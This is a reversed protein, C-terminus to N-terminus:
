GGPAPEPEAAQDSELAALRAAVEDAVPVGLRRYIELASRLDAAGQDAEGEALRSEGIGKLADAEDLPSDVERALEMAEGHHARAEAPRGTERLVIGYMNLAEAAGQPDGVERFLRLAELHAEAAGAYDGTRRRVTGIDDLVNAAGQRGGLERFIELSRALDQGAGAYDGTEVRVRGLGLLGIAEGSRDGLDHAMELAEKLSAVAGEYDGTLRQVAGLVGLCGKQGIPSGVERFLELSQKLASMAGPYDCVQNRVAGLGYFAIAQQDLDGLERALKLARELSDAAGPCDGSLRLVTGRECLAHVLGLRDGLREALELARGLDETAAQYDDTLWSVSGREILANAESQSDGLERALELARQLSEAAGEYDDAMRQIAGLDTLAVALGLRDDLLRSADAAIMHLRRVHNWPAAGRLYGQMAAPLAVAHYPYEAAASFEVAASLNALEAGMWATAQERTALEPRHSPPDAVAFEASITRRALHRDAAQVTHLYYDMLRSVAQEREEAPDRDARARAYLRILDHLRYRNATPQILLNHDVLNEMLRQATRLDLDALAAAAHADADPGPILGLLRLLRREPEALSDYSLDFIGTLDREGDSLATVRHGQDRLVGVLDELSWAPRHRLLAGAIRLALPLGGCLAAIEALVPDPAPGRGLGAVARFLAIADPAPLVDLALAHADDLAKLKRRSTVLVLCGATGPLLPRIQAEGVANDLIILTRTDALRARYYAAREELDDPIQGPPVGLARLLWDLSEGATRPRAGLTHGHLDLFLQGDPFRDALRHAAHVALATKGIGAMGDIASIVVTGGAGDVEDLLSMLAKIEGARGTFHRVAAPLQRSVAKEAAAAPTAQSPASEAPVPAADLDPADRLIRQQLGALEAGPEIGIEGRLRRDLQVYVDLADARRGSRYLALMLLGAFKERFPFETCLATLEGIVERHRGCALEADIATERALLWLEDWPSGLRARLRDSALDELLPGRRLRLATRLAAAKEALDAIGQAQEVAARFALADVAAPDVEALYGTGARLLRIGLGGDGAPDLRARLRSVFTHIASRPEGPPQGDWLLDILRDVPVAANAELLLVGLLCRERRRGVELVRHEHEVEFRGLLRFEV